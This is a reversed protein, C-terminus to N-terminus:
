GAGRSAVGGFGPLDPLSAFGELGFGASALCGDLALCDFSAFADFTAFADFLAFAHLVRREQQDRQGHGAGNWCRGAAM